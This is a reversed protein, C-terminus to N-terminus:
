KNCSTINVNKVIVLVSNTHTPTEYKFDQTASEVIM